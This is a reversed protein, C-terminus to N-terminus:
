CSGHALYATRFQVTKKIVFLAALTISQLEKQNGKFVSDSNAALFSHHGIDSCLSNEPVLMLLSVFVLMLLM